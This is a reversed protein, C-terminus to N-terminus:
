REHLEERTWTVTGQTRWNLGQELIALQRDCAALYADEQEVIDLILQTMMSSLSTHREVALRRAKQLVDRPIALTINQTEM